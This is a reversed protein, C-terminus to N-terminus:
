SLNITVSLEENGMRRMLQKRWVPQLTLCISQSFYGPTHPACVFLLACLYVCVYVCFLVGCKHATIGLIWVIPDKFFHQRATKWLASKHEMASGGRSWPGKPDVSDSDLVLFSLLFLGWMPCVSFDIRRLSIEVATAARQFHELTSHQVPSTAGHEQKYFVRVVHIWMKLSLIGSHM